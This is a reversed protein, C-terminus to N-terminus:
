ACAELFDSAPVGTLRSLAQAENDSFKAKGRLGRSLKSHDIHAKLALDEQTLGKGALVTRVRQQLTPTLTKPM